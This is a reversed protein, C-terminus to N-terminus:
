RKIEGEELHLIKDTSTKKRRETYKARLFVNLSVKLMLGNRGKANLIGM